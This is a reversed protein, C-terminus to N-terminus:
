GKKRAFEKRAKSFCKFVWIKGENEGVFGFPKIKKGSELPNHVFVRVQVSRYSSTWRDNDVKKIWRRERIAM